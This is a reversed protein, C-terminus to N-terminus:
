ASPLVTSLTNMCSTSYPMRNGRLSGFAHKTGRTCLRNLVFDEAPSVKGLDNCHISGLHLVFGSCCRISPCPHFWEVIIPINYFKDAHYIIRRAHSRGRCKLKKTVQYFLNPTKRLPEADRKGYRQVRSRVFFRTVIIGVAFFIFYTIDRSALSFRSKLFCAPTYYLISYNLSLSSSTKILSM